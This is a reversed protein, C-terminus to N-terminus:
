LSKAYVCYYIEKVVLVTSGNTKITKFNLLFVNTNFFVHCNYYIFRNICKIFGIDFLVIELIDVILKCYM